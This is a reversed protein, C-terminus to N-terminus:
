KKEWIVTKQDIYHIMSTVIFLPILLWGLITCVFLDLTTIKNEIIATMSLAILVIAYYVVFITFM